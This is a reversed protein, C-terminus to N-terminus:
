EKEALKNVVNCTPCFDAQAIDVPESVATDVKVDPLALLSQSLWLDLELM